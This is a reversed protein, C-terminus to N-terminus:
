SAKHCSWGDMTRPVPQIWGYNHVVRPHALISRCVMGKMFRRWGIDVQEDAMKTYRYDMGRCVESMTLQGRGRAYEVICHSLNPDMDVEVLWQELINISKMLADVLGAHNCFRIHLCTKNVQACSPCLPFLNKEWPRNGNTPAIDMVQKYACIQFMRPVQCLVTHVMEWDITDSQPGYMIDANHYYARAQHWQVWLKLREGKDFTLKNKGLFDCIPLPFRQTPAEPEPTM